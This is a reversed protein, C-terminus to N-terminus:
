YDLQEVFLFNELNEKTIATSAFEKKFRSNIQNSSSSSTIGEFIAKSQKNFQQSVAVDVLGEELLDKIEPSFDLVALNVKYDLEVIRVAEIAGKLTESSPTIIWDIREGSNLLSIVEEYTRTKSWFTFITKVEKFGEKTLNRRAEDIRDYGNDTIDGNILRVTEVYLIRDNPNARNKIEEAVSRGLKRNDPGVYLKHDVPLQRGYLYIPLNNESFADNLIDTNLGASSAHLVVADPNLSVVAEALNFFDTYCKAELCPLGMTITSYGEKNLNTILPELIARNHYSKIEGKNNFVMGNGIIVVTKEGVVNVDKIYKQATKVFENSIKKPRNGEIIQYFVQLAVFLLIVIFLNNNSKKTNSM